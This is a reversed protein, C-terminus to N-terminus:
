SRIMRALWSRPQWLQKGTGARIDRLCKLKEHDTAQQNVQEHEKREREKKEHGKGKHGKGGRLQSLVHQPMDEKGFHYRSKQSFLCILYQSISFVLVNLWPIHAVKSIVESDTM